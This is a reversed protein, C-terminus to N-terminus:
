VESNDPCNSKQLLFCSILAPLNPFIPCLFEFLICTKNLLTVNPIAFYFIFGFLKFTYVILIQFM